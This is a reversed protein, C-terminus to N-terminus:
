EKNETRTNDVVLRLRLRSTKPGGTADIAQKQLMNFIKQQEDIQQQTTRDSNQPGDRLEAMLQNIRTISQKIRDIRAAVQAPTEKNM